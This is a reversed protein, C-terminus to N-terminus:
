TDQVPTEVQSQKRLAPTLTHLVTRAWGQEYDYVLTNIRLIAKFDRYLSPHPYIHYGFQVTFLGLSTLGVYLICCSLLASLLFCPFYYDEGEFVLCDARFVYVYLYHGSQCTM